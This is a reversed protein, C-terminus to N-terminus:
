ARRPTWTGAVRWALDEAAARVEAADRPLAVRPNGAVAYAGAYGLSMLERRGVDVRGALVLAPRAAAAAREGVAAVVGQSLNRWDFISTATVVLDAAAIADPLGTALAVVETGAELRAGLVALAFGLGGGAGAGAHRDVRHPKGTLLDTGTPLATQLHQAWAGMAAEANQATAASLGMSEQAGAAAGNLGLLGIATDYAAVLGVGSARVRERAARAIAPDTRARDTDAADVGALAAVLGVGGDLVGAGGLGIVVRAPADALTDALLQGLEYSGMPGPAGPAAVGLAASLYRVTGSEGEVQLYPAAVTEGSPALVPVTGNMAGPYAAAVAGLLGAGGDSQPCCSVSVADNRDRWGHRLADAVEPAALEGWAGPALLVRSAGTM